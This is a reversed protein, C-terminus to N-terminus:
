GHGRVTRGRGPEAGCGSSEPNTLIVLGGADQVGPLPRHLLDSWRSFIATNAGIGLALSLVPVATFAPATGIM